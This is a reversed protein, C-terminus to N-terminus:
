LIHQGTIGQNEPNEFLCTCYLVGRPRAIPTGARGQVGTKTTLARRPGPVAHPRSPPHGVGRLGSPAEALAHRTKLYAYVYYLALHLAHTQAPQGDHGIVAVPCTRTRSCCAGSPLRQARESTRGCCPFCCAYGVRQAAKRHNETHTQRWQGPTHCPRSASFATRYPM